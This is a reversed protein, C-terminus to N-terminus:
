MKQKEDLIELDLKEKQQLKHSFKAWAAKILDMKVFLKECVPVPPETGMKSYSRAQTSQLLPNHTCKHLYPISKRWKTKTICSFNGSTELWQHDMCTHTLLMHRSHQQFVAAQLGNTDVCAAAVAPGRKGYPTQRQYHDIIINVVHNKKVRAWVSLSPPSLFVSLFSLVNSFYQGEGQHNKKLM